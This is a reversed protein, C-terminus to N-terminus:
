FVSYKDNLIINKDFNNIRSIVLEECDSSFRNADIISKNSEKRAEKVLILNRMITRTVYILYGYFLTKCLLLYIVM